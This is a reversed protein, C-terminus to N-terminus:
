MQPRTQVVTVNDDPDVVGEVDQASGLAEEIAAGVKCIASMIRVRYAEDKIIPDENYDVRKLVTPDVTISDYLGAGAYGELDEGNSDSRFILSDKVYMGEGKSPFLVVKPADLADKKAVFALASGPVMGSVISEGLGMVLECYVESDDGNTPNRTHIVYAYKAPVVRQCLVAMRIDMFDLGVKRMSIYARENFKSAWVGQQCM